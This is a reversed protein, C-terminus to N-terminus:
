DSVQVFHCYFIDLHCSVTLPPMVGVNGCELVKANKADKMSENCQYVGTVYSMDKVM